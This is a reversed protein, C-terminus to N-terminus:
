AEMRAAVEEAAARCEEDTANPVTCDNTPAAM